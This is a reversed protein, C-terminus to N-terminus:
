WEAGGKRMRSYVSNDPMLGSKLLILMMDSYNEPALIAQMINVTNFMRELNTNSGQGGEQAILFLGRTIAKLASFNEAYAEPSDFMEILDQAQTPTIYNLNLTVQKAESTGTIPTIKVNDM